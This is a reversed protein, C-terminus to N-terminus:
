TQIKTLASTNLGVRKPLTTDALFSRALAQDSIRWILPKLLDKLQLDKAIYKTTQRASYGPHFCNLQLTKVVTRYSNFYKLKIMM